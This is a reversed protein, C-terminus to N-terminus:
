PAEASVFPRSTGCSTEILFGIDSVPDQVSRVRKFHSTRQEGSQTAFTGFHRTVAGNALGKLRYGTLKFLARDHAFMSSHRNRGKGRCRRLSGTEFAEAPAASSQM